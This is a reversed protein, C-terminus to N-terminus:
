SKSIHAIERYSHCVNYKYIHPYDPVTYVHILDLKDQYAHSKNRLLM